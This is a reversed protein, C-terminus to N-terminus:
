KNITLRKREILEWADKYTFVSTEELSAFRKENFFYVNTPISKKCCTCFMNKHINNSKFIQVTNTCCTKFNNLVIFVDGKKFYGEPHDETAIVKQGKKFKM